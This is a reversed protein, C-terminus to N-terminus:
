PSAGSLEGRRGLRCGRPLGLWSGGPRAPTSGASGPAPWAQRAASHRSTPRRYAACAPYVWEEGRYSPAPWACELFTVAAIGEPAMLSAMAALGGTVMSPPAHSFVSQALVFDFLPHEGSVSFNETFSFRPAKRAVFELSLNHEIGEEV